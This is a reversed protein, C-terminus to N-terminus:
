DEGRYPIAQTVQSLTWVIQPSLKYEIRHYVVGSSDRWM